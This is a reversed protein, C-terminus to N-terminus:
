TQPASSVNRAQVDRVSVVLLYGLPFALSNQAGLNRGKSMPQLMSPAAKRSVPKLGPELADTQVMRFLRKVSEQANCRHGVERARSM